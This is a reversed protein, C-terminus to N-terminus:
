DLDDMYSPMESPLQDIFESPTKDSSSSEEVKVNPESDSMTESSYSSLIKKEEKFTKKAEDLEEEKEKLSEKMAKKLEPLDAIGPVRGEFFEQVDPNKKLDNLHSNKEKVSDPLKKDLKIAKKVDDIYKKIDKIEDEIEFSEKDVKNNSEMKVENNSEKERMILPILM